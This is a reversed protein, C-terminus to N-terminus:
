INYADRQSNYYGIEYHLWNECCKKKCLIFSLMNTKAM